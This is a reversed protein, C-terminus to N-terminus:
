EEAGPKPKERKTATRTRSKAEPPKAPPPDPEDRGAEAPLQAIRDVVMLRLIAGVGALIAASTVGGGLSALALVGRGQREAEALFPLAGDSGTIVVAGVVSLLLVIGSAWILARSLLEYWELTGRTLQM